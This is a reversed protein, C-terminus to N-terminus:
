CAASILSEHNLSPLVPPTDRMPTQTAYVTVYYVNSGRRRADHKFIRLMVGLPFTTFCLQILKSSISM